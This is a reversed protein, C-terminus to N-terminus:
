KLARTVERKGPPGPLNEVRFGVSKLMRKVHGKACYTVLIGDPKLLDYMKQFIELTWMEPQIAPGFADFYILDYSSVKDNFDQLTTLCKSLFFHTSINKKQCCVQSHMLEFVKETNQADILKVYNLKAILNISIPFPEIAIYDITKDNAFALQSVYTLLCNLGTGFGVELIKLDINKQHHLGNQIYVINSEQWAGHLSHYQENLGPLILTSSGDATIFHEPQISSIKHLTNDL